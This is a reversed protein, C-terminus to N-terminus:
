LNKASLSGNKYVESLIYKVHEDEIKRLSRSRYKKTDEAFDGFIKYRDFVTRTKRELYSLNRIKYLQSSNNYKKIM